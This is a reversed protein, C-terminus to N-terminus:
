SCARGRVSAASRSVKGSEFSSVYIRHHRDLAIGDAGRCDEDEAV